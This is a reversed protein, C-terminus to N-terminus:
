RGLNQRHHNMFSEVLENDDIGLYKLFSVVFGRLYVAAPRAQFQDLEIAEFLQIQMRLTSCIERESVGAAERLAKLASGSLTETQGLAANLKSVQNSNLKAKTKSPSFNTAAQNLVTNSKYNAPNPKQSVYMRHTTSHGDFLSRFEPLDLPDDPLLQNVSKSTSFNTKFKQSSSESNANLITEEFQIAEAASVNPLLSASLIDDFGDGGAQVSEKIGLVEKLALDLQSLSHKFVVSQTRSEHQQVLLSKKREYADVIEQHSANNHIGLLDLASLSSSFAQVEHHM